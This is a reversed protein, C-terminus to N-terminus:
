TLQAPAKKQLSGDLLMEHKLNANDATALDSIAVSGLHTPDGSAFNNSDAVTLHQHRLLKCIPKWDLIRIPINRCEQGVGFRVNNMDRSRGRAVVINCFGAQFPSAMDIHFLGKSDIGRLSFM